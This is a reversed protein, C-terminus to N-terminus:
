LKLLNGFHMDTEHFRDTDLGASPTFTMEGFIIEENEVYFDVRVFPFPDSLVEAYRFVQDICEPKKLTFTEPVKLGDPNIRLLNWGRDFFYFKRDKNMCVLVCEAKGNFCYVKYDNLREQNEGEIYKECIIKKKIDKYNLEAKLKWYDEKLWAALQNRIDGDNLATKDSCIINYGCGHNCKLVFCNPLKDWEIENPEDWVAYLDNLIEGCGKSQVYERVKFKDACQTVLANNHYTNLKLWLIKENLTQPHELDLHKHFKKFYLLKTTM